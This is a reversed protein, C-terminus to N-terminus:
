QFSFFMDHNLFLRSTYACAVRLKYINDCVRTISSVWNQYLISDYIARKKYGTELNDLSPTPCMLINNLSNLIFFIYFVCSSM